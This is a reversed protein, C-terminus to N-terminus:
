NRGAKSVGARKMHGSASRFVIKCRIACAGCHTVQVAVVRLTGDAEARWLLRVPIDGHNEALWEEEQQWAAQQTDAKKKRSTTTTFGSEEQSRKAISM